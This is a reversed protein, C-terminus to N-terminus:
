GHDAGCAFYDLESEVGEHDKSADRKGNGVTAPDLQSEERQRIDKGHREEHEGYQNKCKAKCHAPNYRTEVHKTVPARMLMRCPADGCKFVLKTRHARFPADYMWYM